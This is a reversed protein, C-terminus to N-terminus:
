TEDSEVEDELADLAEEESNAYAVCSDTVIVSEDTKEAPIENYDDDCDCCDCCNDCDFDSDECYCGENKKKCYIVAAAAAAAGALLGFFLGKKM